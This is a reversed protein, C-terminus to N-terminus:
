IFNIPFRFIGGEKMCNKWSRSVYHQEFFRVSCASWKLPHNIGKTWYDMFGTCCESGIGNKEKTGTCSSCKKKTGDAARRCYGHEKKYGGSSWFDHSM